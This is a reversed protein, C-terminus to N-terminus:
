TCFGLNWVETSDLPVTWRFIKNKWKTMFARQFLYEFFLNVNRLILPAHRKKTAGITDWITKTLGLVLIVYAKSRMFNRIRDYGMKDYCIKALHSIILYLQVLYSVIRYSLILLVLHSVIPTVSVPASFLFWGFNKYSLASRILLPVSLVCSIKRMKESSPEKLPM